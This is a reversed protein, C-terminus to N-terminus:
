TRRSVVKLAGLLIKNSKVLEESVPKSRPFSRKEAENPLPELNESFSTRKKLCKILL